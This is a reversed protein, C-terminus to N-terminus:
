FTEKMFNEISLFLFQFFYFDDQFWFETEDMKTRM